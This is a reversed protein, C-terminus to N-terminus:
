VPFSQQRHLQCVLYRWGVFFGFMPKPQVNFTGVAQYDLSAGGGGADGSATIWVKPSFDIEFHGGAVGDVWNASGSYPVNAPRPTITLGEHWYRFGILADVKFHEKDVIRYGVKPTLIIQSELFRM